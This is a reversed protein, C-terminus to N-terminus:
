WLYAYVVQNASDDFYVLHPLEGSDLVLDCSLPDHGADGVSETDWTADVGVMYKMTYDWPYNQSAFCIHAQDLSDMDMGIEAVYWGSALSYITNLAWSTGNWRAYKVSDDDDEEYAINPHGLSDLHLNANRGRETTADVTSYAWGYAGDAAYRFYEPYTLYYAVHPYGLADVTVSTSGVKGAEVLEISWTSGDYYAYYVGEWAANGDGYTIHIGDTEDIHISTHGYEWYQYSSALTETHWSSGDHWAHKFSSQGDDDVYSIHPHGASDIAIDIYWVDTSGITTITWGMGTDYAYKLEESNARYAIHAADDDDLAIAVFNGHQDGSDIVSYHWDGTNDVLGDCDNDVGDAIEPAGPYVSADSDDCDGENPTYGDGDDDIDAASAITFSCSASRMSSGNSADEVAIWWTYTEDYELGTLTHETLSATPSEYELWTGDSMRIYLFAVLPDLDPDTATWQLDATTRNLLEDQAPSTCHPEDPPTDNALLRNVFNLADVRYWEDEVDTELPQATDQLDQLLDAQSASPDVHRAIGLLGSVIPAALSTGSEADDYQGPIVAGNNIACYIAEGPAAIEVPDGWNSGSSQSTWRAHDFEDIATAGVGIVDDFAAPYFHDAESSNNGAGAVLLAGQDNRAYDIARWMALKTYFELGLWGKMESIEIGFSMNIVDAGRDAAFKIAAAGSKSGHRVAVLDAHPCFGNIGIDDNTATAISAVRTGHDNDSLVTPDADNEEFDYLDYAHRFPLDPHNTDFGADVVALTAHLDSYGHDSLAQWARPFRTTLWAYRQQDTLGADNDVDLTELATSTLVPEPAASSVAPHAELAEVVDVLGPIDAVPTVLTVWHGLEGLHGDLQGGVAAVANNMETQSASPEFSVFVLESSWEQGSDDAILSGTDLTPLITDSVDELHEAATYDAGDCDQDVGDDLVEEAGPYADSDGDDCDGACETHGDGDDDIEEAPVVGNCNNDMGDCVEPANPFTTADADDCDDECVMYGDADSDSEDSPIVGNCNNDVGDCVEPANPYATADGDDCDEECVMYGDGDADM